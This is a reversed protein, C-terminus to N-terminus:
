EFRMIFALAYYPPRNEHYNDGGTSSTANTANQPADSNSATPGNGTHNNDDAGSVTVPHTHAALEAVTLKHAAEGGTNGPAYNGSTAGTGADWSYNGTAVSAGVIFRNRLDPTGNSGDCLKWSSPITAVTGSWMIIGGVPITGASTGDVKTISNVKLLSM